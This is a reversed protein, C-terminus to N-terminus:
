SGRPHGRGEGESFKGFFKRHNRNGGGGNRPLLAEDAPCGRRMVAKRPLRTGMSPSVSLEIVDMLNGAMRRDRHAGSPKAGRKHSLRLSRPFCLTKPPPSSGESPLM